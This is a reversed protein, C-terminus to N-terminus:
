FCRTEPQVPAKPKTSWFKAAHAKKSMESRAARRSEGLIPDNWWASQAAAQKARTEASAVCGRHNTNGRRAAAMNARAEPTHKKGRKAAAMKACAEPTHKRGRSALSMRARTEVSRKQGRIAASRRAITEPSLRKGRQAASMRAITEPTPKYGVLGEGGETLNYGRPSRTKLVRIFHKELESLEQQTEATGLVIVSFADFGYKRIARHFISNSRWTNGFAETRHAAMRRAVPQGTKGVYLKGNIDNVACYIFM